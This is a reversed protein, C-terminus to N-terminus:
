AGSILGFDDEHLSIRVINYEGTNEDYFSVMTEMASPFSLFKSSSFRMKHFYDVAAKSYVAHSLLSGDTAEMMFLATPYSTGILVVSSNKFSCMTVNSLPTSGWYLQKMWEYGYQVQMDNAVGVIATEQIDDV